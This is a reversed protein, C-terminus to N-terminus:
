SWTNGRIRAQIYEAPRLFLHVGFRLLSAILVDDSRGTGLLYGRLDDREKLSLSKRKRASTRKQGSVRPAPGAAVLRELAERKPPTMRIAELAFLLVARYQRITSPAWRGNQRWFWNVVKEIDGGPGAEERVVVCLARLRKIYSTRTAESRVVSRGTCDQRMVARRDNSSAVSNSASAQLFGSGASLCNEAPGVAIFGCGGSLLVDGHFVATNGPLLDNGLSPAASQM